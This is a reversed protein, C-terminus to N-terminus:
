WWNASVWHNKALPCNEDDHEKQREYGFECNNEDLKQLMM